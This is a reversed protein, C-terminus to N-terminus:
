IRARRPLRENAGHDGELAPCEGYDPQDSHMDILQKYALGVTRADRNLDFLGVPISSQRAGQELAIEWDIQDTLSYWTFGVLPVGTQRLCSSMTGSGGCGARVRGVADMRNTETHMM